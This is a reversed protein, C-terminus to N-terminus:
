PLSPASTLPWCLVRCLMLLARAPGSVFTQPSLLLMHAQASVRSNSAPAQGGPGEPQGSGHKSYHFAKDCALHPIKTGM